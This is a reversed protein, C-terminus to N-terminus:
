HNDHISVYFDAASSRDWYEVGASTFKKYLYLRFGTPRREDFPPVAIFYDDVTGGTRAYDVDVFAQYNSTALSGLFSVDLIGTSSAAVGSIQGADFTSTAEQAVVDFSSGNWQVHAWAKSIEQADHVGATHAVDARVQLDAGEQVLQNFYTSLTPARLGNTRGLMGGVSGAAGSPLRPGHIGLHFSSDEGTVTIWRCDVASGLTGSWYTSYVTVATDSTWEAWSLAPAGDGRGSANQVLLPGMDKLYRNGALSLIVTGIAPNYTDKLTVDGSFGSLTYAPGANVIVSGLARAIETSNHEGTAELHEARFHDRVHVTNALLQSYRASSLLDKRRFAPLSLFM